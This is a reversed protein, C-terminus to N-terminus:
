AIHHAAAPTDSTGDIGGEIKIPSERAQLQPHSVTFSKGRV